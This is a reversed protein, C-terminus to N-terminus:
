ETYVFYLHEGRDPEGDRTRVSPIWVIEGDREVVAIKQRQHMPIKQDSFLKKLKHSHGGSFIHDGERRSRAIFVNSITDGSLSQQIFLNYVNQTKIRQVEDKDSSVYIRGGTPLINEGEHLPVSWELKKETCDRRDHEVTLYGQTCRLRKKGILSLSFDGGREILGMASRIHTYEYGAEADELYRCLVRSRLAAALSLLDATSLKGDGSDTFSRYWTEATHDLYEADSRVAETLRLVASELSPNIERLQPLVKHRIRNRTYVCEANTADTVYKIGLKSCYGLVQEKSITLIPRIVYGDRVPPIGCVGSIATGRTLNFIVTEANDTANHATAIRVCADSFQESIRDRIESFFSYRIDRACEECSRSQEKAKKLVDVRLSYFPIKLRECESRCFAEDSDADAGRLMHNVHAAYLRLGREAAIHSMAYLLLSSDAGGSYGVIIDTCELM